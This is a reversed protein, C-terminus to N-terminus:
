RIGLIKSKIIGNITKIIKIFYYIGARESLKFMLYVIFYYITVFHFLGINRQVYQYIEKRRRSNESVTKSKAHKRYVSFYENSYYYRFGMKLMRRFYDWDLVYNYKPNLRLQNKKWFTSPQLIQYLYDWYKNKLLKRNITKSNIIKGHNESFFGIGFIIDIDKKGKFINVVKAIVNEDYFYDDSNLWCVIQGESMDLGKNIAEAQGSDNERIYKINHKGIYKRVIEETNDTSNNDIIIFEINKYTQSVVSRIADEVFEGQNYTPTIISVKYDVNIIM